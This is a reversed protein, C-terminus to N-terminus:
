SRESRKMRLVTKSRVRKEWPNETMEIEKGSLIDRDEQTEQGKDYRTKAADWRKSMEWPVPKESM